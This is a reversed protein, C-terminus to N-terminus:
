REQSPGSGRVHLSQPPVVGDTAPLAGPDQRLQSDATPRERRVRRSPVFQRLVLMRRALSAGVALAGNEARVAGIRVPFGGTYTRTQQLATCSVQTCTHHTRTGIAFSNWKVSDDAPGVRTLCSPMCVCEPGATDQNGAHCLPAPRPPPPWSNHRKGTLDPMCPVCCYLICHSLISPM